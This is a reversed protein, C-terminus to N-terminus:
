SESFACDFLSRFAFAVSILILTTINRRRLACHKTICHRHHYSFVNIVTEKSLFVTTTLTELSAFNREKPSVHLHRSQFPQISIATMWGWLFCEFDQAKLNGFTESLFNCLWKGIPEYCREWRELTPQHDQFSNIIVSIWNRQEDCPEDHDHSIIEVQSVNATLWDTILSNEEDRIKEHASSRNNRRRNRLVNALQESNNTCWNSSIVLSALRAARALRISNSPLLQFLLNWRMNFSYIM